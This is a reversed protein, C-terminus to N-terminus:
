GHLNINHYINKSISDVDLGSLRVNGHMDGELKLASSLQM